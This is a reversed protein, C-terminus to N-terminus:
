APWTGRLGNGFVMQYEGGGTGVGAGGLQEDVISVVGAEVAHAEGGEAIDDFAHVHDVFYIRNVAFGWALIQDGFLAVGVQFGIKRVDVLDLQSPDNRGNRGRRGGRLPSFWRGLWRGLRSGFGGLLLVAVAFM